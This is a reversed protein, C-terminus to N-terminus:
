WHYGVGVSVRFLSLNEESFTNSNYLRIEPRVSVRPVVFLRVGVGGNLALGTDSSEAEIITAQNGQVVITAHVNRSSTLGVGGIVYPQLTSDSFHYLFDGSFTTASLTGERGSGTCPVGVNCPVAAPTLGAMRNVEFQIGLRNSLRVGAGGAVNLRNGLTEGDFRFLHGWGAGGFVEGRYPQAQADLWGSCAVVVLLVRLTHPFLSPSPSGADSFIVMPPLPMM